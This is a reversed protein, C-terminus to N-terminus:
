PHTPIPTYRLNEFTLSKFSYLGPTSLTEFELESFKKRSPEAEDDRINNDLVM